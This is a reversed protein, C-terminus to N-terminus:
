PVIKWVAQDIGIEWPFVLVLPPPKWTLEAKVELTESNIFRSPDGGVTVEVAGDSNFSTTSSDVEEYMNTVYNFLSITQTVNPTDARTELVFRLEAPADTV